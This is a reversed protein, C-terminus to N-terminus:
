QKVIFQKIFLYFFYVSFYHYFHLFYTYLGINNDNHM